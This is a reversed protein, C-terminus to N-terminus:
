HSLGNGIMVFSEGNSKTKPQFQNNFQNNSWLQEKRGSIDRKIEMLWGWLIICGESHKVKSLQTLFHLKAEKMDKKMWTYM